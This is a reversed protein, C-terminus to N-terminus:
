KAGFKKMINMDDISKTELASEEFSKEKERNQLAIELKKMEGFEEHLVVQTEQIKYEATVVGHLYRQKQERAGVLYNDLAFAYETASFQNAEMEMERVLNILREELIAKHQQLLSIRKLIENISHKRLKILTKLNKM